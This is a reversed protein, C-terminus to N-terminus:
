AVQGKCIWCGDRWHGLFSLPTSAMLDIVAVMLDCDKPIADFACVFRWMRDKDQPLRGACCIGDGSQVVAKPPVVSM